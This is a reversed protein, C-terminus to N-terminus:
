DTAPHHTPRNRRQNVCSKIQNCRGKEKGDYKDDSDITPMEIPLENVVTAVTPTANIPIAVTRSKDSAIVAPAITEPANKPSLIDGRESVVFRADEITPTSKNSCIRFIPQVVIGAKIKDNMKKPM